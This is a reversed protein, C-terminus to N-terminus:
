WVGPGWSITITGEGQGFSFSGVPMTDKTGGTIPAAGNYYETLSKRWVCIGTGGNLTFNFKGELGGHRGSNWQINGPCDLVIPATGTSTGPWSTGASRVEKWKLGAWWLPNDYPEDHADPGWVFKFMGYGRCFWDVKGSPYGDTMRMTCPVQADYITSTPPSGKTALLTWNGTITDYDLTLRFNSAAGFNGSYYQVQSEAVYDMDYDIDRALWGSNPSAQWAFDVSGEYRPFVFITLAISDSVTTGADEAELSGAYTNGGVLGTPDVTVTIEDSDCGALSGSTPLRSVLGAVPDPVTLTTAWSFNKAGNSIIDTIEDRATADGEIFYWYLDSQLILIIDGCDNCLSGSLTKLLHGNRSKLHDTM